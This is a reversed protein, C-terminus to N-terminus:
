SNLFVSKHSNYCIRSLFRMAHSFFFYFCKIDQPQIDCRNSFHRYNTLLCARLYGYEKDTACYISINVLHQKIKDINHLSSQYDWHETVDWTRYYVVNINPCCIQDFLPRTAQKLLWVTDCAQHTRDNDANLCLVYFGRSNWLIHLLFLYCHTVLSFNLLRSASLHICMFILINRKHKGAYTCCIQIKSKVLYLLLTSSTHHSLHSSFCLHM